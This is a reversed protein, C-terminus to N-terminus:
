TRKTYTFGKYKRHEKIARSLNSIHVNLFKALDTMSDFVEGTQDIVIKIKCAERAKAFDEESFTYAQPKGKRTANFERLANLHDESFKKGKLAKSINEKHEDSLHKGKAWSPKGRNANGIKIKTEESLCGCGPEQELINYGKEPNTTDYKKILESEIRVSEEFTLNEFLITGKFNEPGYKCIANWFRESTKYGTLGSGNARDSLTQSTRGIYLKGNVLNEYKYVINVYM